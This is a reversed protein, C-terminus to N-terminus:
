AAPTVLPQIRNVVTHIGDCSTALKRSDLFASAPGTLSALARTRSIVCKDFGHGRLKEATVWMDVMVLKTQQRM